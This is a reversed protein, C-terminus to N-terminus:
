GFLAAIRGGVIREEGENLGFVHITICDEWDRVRTWIPPDGAKLREVVDAATLGTIAADVRLDLGFPQHGIINDLMAASVGSWAGSAYRVTARYFRAIPNSYSEGSKAVSRWNSCAAANAADYDFCREYRTQSINGHHANDAPKDASM